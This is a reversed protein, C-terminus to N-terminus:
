TPLQNRLRVSGAHMPTRARLTCRLGTLTARIARESTGAVADLPVIIGFGRVHADCATMWVCSEISIGTVILLGIGRDLLLLELPTGFFASHRPKLVLADSPQPALAALKRHTPRLSALFRRTLAPGDSTWPHGADNVYIVPVSVRRARRLLATLASCRRWLARRLAPGEPFGFDTLVDLVLVAANRPRARGPRVADATAAM